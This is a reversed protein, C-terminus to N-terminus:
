QRATLGAMSISSEALQISQPRYSFASALQFHLPKCSSCQSDSALALPYFQERINVTSWWCLIAPGGGIQLTVLRVVAGLCLSSSWVNVLTFSVVFLLSPSYCRQYPCACWRWCIGVVM